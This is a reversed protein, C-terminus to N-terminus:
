TLLFEKVFRSGFYSLTLLISACVSLVLVKHGRWGQAFHGWLILAYLSLAIFSFVTKHANEKAMFNELFIFGTIQSALLILTGAILISFLQKEVQMLPPLNAVAHLKKNKLKYNIYNVQFAFLTAIVLVCYAILALSIHAILVIDSTALPIIDEPLIFLLLLQWAGAFGYIVPLLLNLKYRLALVTVTISICLSVLSIINPLSINFSDLETYIVFFLARYIIHTIIAVFALPLYIKPNPGEPHFLRSVIAITALLYAIGSSIVLLDM